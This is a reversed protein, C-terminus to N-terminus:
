VIKCISLNSNEHTQQFVNWYLRDRSNVSKIALEDSEFKYEKQYEYIPNQISYDILDKM